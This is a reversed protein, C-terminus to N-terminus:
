LDGPRTLPEPAGDQQTTAMCTARLAFSSLSENGYQKSVARLLETGSKLIGLVRDPVGSKKACTVADNVCSEIEWSGDMLEPCPIRTQAECIWGIDHLLELLEVVAYPSRVNELSKCRYSEVLGHLLVSLSHAFQHSNGPCLDWDSLCLVPAWQQASALMEKLISNRDFYWSCHGFVVFDFKAKQLEDGANLPDQGLQFDVIAGYKGAAIHTTSEGISVPAGYDPNGPDLATVMGNAGVADALVVTLDGQGCGIELVKAGPPIGWFQVLQVRIATQARQIVPYNRYLLMERALEDVSNM